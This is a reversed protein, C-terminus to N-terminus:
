KKKLYRQARSTFVEPLPDDKGRPEIMLHTDEVKAITEIKSSQDFDLELRQPEHEDNLLWRGSLTEKSTIADFTGDSRFRLVSETGEADVTRWTGILPHQSSCGTLLVALLLAFVLSRRM